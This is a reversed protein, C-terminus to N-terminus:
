GVEPLALVSLIGPPYDAKAAELAECRGLTVLEVIKQAIAPGIGPIEELSGARVRDALDAVSEVKSAALDYARARYPNEGKLQLFLSLDRLARAVEYRDM